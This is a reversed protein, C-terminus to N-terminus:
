DYTDCETSNPTALIAVSPKTAIERQGYFVLVTGFPIPLPVDEDPPLRL